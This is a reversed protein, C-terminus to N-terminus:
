LYLTSVPDPYVWWIVHRKGRVDITVPVCNAITDEHASKALFVVHAVFCDFKRALKYYSYPSLSFTSRCDEILVVWQGLMSEESIKSSYKRAFIIKTTLTDMSQNAIWQNACALGLTNKSIMRKWAKISTARGNTLSSLIHKLDNKGSVSAAVHLDLYVDDFVLSLIYARIDPPLILISIRMALVRHLLSELNISERTSELIFANGISFLEARYDEM